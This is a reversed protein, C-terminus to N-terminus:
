DYNRFLKIALEADVIIKKGNQFIAEDLQGSKKVLFAKTKSCGLVYALGDLGYVYKREEQINIPQEKEKLVEKLVEVLEGLTIRSIPMDYIDFEEKM